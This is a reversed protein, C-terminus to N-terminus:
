DDVYPTLLPKGSFHADLNSVVLELIAKVTNRTTCAMHPLLVVNEMNWLEQPVQPENEFVDLGAGAIREEVLAKVLEQEDVVPGRAINVLFGEPGLADLVERGVLHTTEKTLACTLVLMDSNKALELVTAYFKYPLGSKEARALYSIKCGFAEARKAVALGIRGLGVIGLRKGSMKHTFTPYNGLEPWLGKRVFRDAACIHRMTALLLGIAMDACDDTGVDPTNTVAIGREKCKHLDVRDVGVGTKSVIELKPLKDILAADVWMAASAILGRISEANEALYAEKDSQEWLPFVRYKPELLGQLYPLSRHMLVGPKVM